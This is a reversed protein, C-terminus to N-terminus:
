SPNSRAPKRGFVGTFMTVTFRWFKWWWPKRQVWEIKGHDHFLQRLTMAVTYATEGGPRCVHAHYPNCDISQPDGDIPSAVVPYNKLGNGPAALKDAQIWAWGSFDKPLKFRTGAHQARPVLYTRVKGDVSKEGLRDLSIEGPDRKELFHDIELTDKWQTQDWAGALRPVAFLRRGVPERSGVAVAPSPVWRRAM